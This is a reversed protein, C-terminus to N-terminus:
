SKPYAARLLAPPKFPHWDGAPQALRDAIVYVAAPHYAFAIHSAAIGINETQPAVGTLCVQRGVIGDVVSYLATTPVPLPPPESEGRVEHMASQYDGYWRAWQTWRPWQPFDSMDTPVSDAQDSMGTALRIPSGLTIVQRVSETRRWALERAYLGGLSWGIVSIPVQYRASLADLRAAIGDRVRPTPGFNTGLGWGHVRYGLRRLVRRLVLTASDAAGLGPLVLVPHGDGRPLNGLLPAAGALLGIDVAARAPETLYLLRSPIVPRHNM